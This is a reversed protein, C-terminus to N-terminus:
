KAAGAVGMARVCSRLVLSQAATVAMMNAGAAAGMDFVSNIREEHM